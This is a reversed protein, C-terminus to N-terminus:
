LSISKWDIHLSVRESAGKLCEEFFINMLDYLLNLPFHGHLLIIEPYVAHVLCLQPSNRFQKTHLIAFAAM